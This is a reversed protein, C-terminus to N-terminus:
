LYSLLDFMSEFLGISENNLVPADKNQERSLWLHKYKDPCLDITSICPPISLYTGTLPPSLKDDRYM